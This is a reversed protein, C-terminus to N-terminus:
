GGRRPTQQPDITTPPILHPHNDIFRIDWGHTHIMTHARTCTLVGQNLDTSGQDRNWWRVHHVELYVGPNGCGCICGGDREVIAAKQAKSYLRRSRGWDLIESKGGLVAPIINADAALRRATGASIPHEDTGIQAAGLGTELQDLTMRVVVTTAALAPTTNECGLVHRAMDTLVDAGIQAPTRTDEIVSGSRTVPSAEDDASGRPDGAHENADTSCDTSETHGGVIQPRRTARFAAAIEADVVADLYAAREPDADLQYRKLGNSLWFRKLCRAAVLQEERPEIGDTDLHDRWQAAVRRVDDATGVSAFDVLATEAAVMAEADANSRAANLQTIIHSAAEVTVVGNNVGVALTEFQPPLKEGALSFRPATATGVKCFRDADGKGVRGVAMVLQAANAHGSRRALGDVGLETRSREAIEGALRAISADATRRAAFAAELSGLLAADTMGPVLSPDVGVFAVDRDLTPGGIEAEM